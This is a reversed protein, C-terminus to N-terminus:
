SGSYFSEPPTDSSDTSTHSQIATQSITTLKYFNLKPVLTTQVADSEVFQLLAKVAGTAPGKTYAHEINWFKYNGSNIDTADAKYGDICIPTPAGSASSSTVFGTSVYGISGPTSSIAQFVAGTNDQTLTNGPVENKSGLVYKEFTARTGSNSPRNVVTILENPGGIQSWNTINGTYIQQIQQTTLNQVKSSIDNSVVLTFAVVAVQHDTLGSIKKASQYLDSDGIQVAGNNVDTLGKGSGGANISSHTGNGQDFVAAAAQMLPQLASSGDATISGSVGANPATPTQSPNGTTNTIDQVTAHCATLTSSGTTATSSGGTGASGNGGCGALMVTTALVSGLLAKAGISRIAYLRDLM